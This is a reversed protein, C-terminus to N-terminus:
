SNLFEEVRMISVEEENLVEWDSNNRHLASLYEQESQGKTPILLAKKGLVYYDMISTYGARSIIRNASNLLMNLESHSAFDILRANHLNKQVCKRRTGRVIVFKYNPLQFIIDLLKIELLTRKPEPGSLIILTFDGSAAPHLEYRSLPGIYKYPIPFRDPHSLKGALGPKTPLDPIWLQNFKKIFFENIIRFLFSLVMSPHHIDLQHTIFINVAAKKRFFGFRCDSIVIVRKDTHILRNVTQYDGLIARCIKPFQLLLNLVISDFYYKVCYPTSNILPVDPLEKRVLEAALNDSVVTVKYNKSQLAKIVAISRSAHGLGWDLIGYVVEHDDPSFSESLYSISENLLNLRYM